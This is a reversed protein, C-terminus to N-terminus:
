HLGDVMIIFTLIYKYKGKVENGCHAYTWSAPFLVLKGCEPRVKRGNIFETCGDENPELTNLYLMGFLFSNPMSDYHWGYKAGKPQRQLTYGTNLIVDTEIYNILSEFTNFPQNYKYEESLYKSYLKIGMQTYNSITNDENIWNCKDSIYLEKSNKMQKEVFTKKAYTVVGDEKNDDNDFKEILHKCVSEPLFGPLEMILDNHQKM